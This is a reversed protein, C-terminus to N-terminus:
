RSLQSRHKSCSYKHILRGHSNLATSQAATNTYSGVTLTSLQAKLLQIQTHASWSLQSSHKSCSYKHILRGHSNLDTSRAATNTYSGVTLTSIQAELLQIQNQKLRNQQELQQIRRAYKQRCLRQLCVYM